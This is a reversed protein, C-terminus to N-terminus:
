GTPTLRCGRCITPEPLAFALCCTHRRVAPEPTVEVLDALGLAALLPDAGEAHGARVLAHAVGSAVSGLLTRRGLHLGRHLGDLVPDLHKALLRDRLYGTLDDPHTAVVPRRLGVELLPAGSHLRILVNGASVDPVRGTTYGVVAPLAIWYAYSKWAVAAAVHPSGGWRRRAASVLDPLATGDAYRTAPTWGTPDAVVLGPALGRVPADGLRDRMADLRSLIPDLGAIAPVATTVV